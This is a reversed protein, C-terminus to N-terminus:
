CLGPPSVVGAIQGMPLAVYVVLTLFSDIAAYVFYAAFVSRGRGVKVYIWVLGASVVALVVPSIWRALLLNLSPTLLSVSPFRSLLDGFLLLKVGLQLLMAVVLGRGAPGDGVDVAHTALSFVVLWAVPVLVWILAVPTFFLSTLVSMVTNLGRNVVDYTTVRNLTEKAQPSTSAYVVNYREFGATDIWVLHLQGQADLAVNPRVSAGRSLNVIEQGGVQGPLPDVAAIQLMEPNGPSSVQTFCTLVQREPQGDLFRPHATMAPDGGQVHVAEDTVPPPAYEFPGTGPLEPLSPVPFTVYFTFNRIERERMELVWALYVSDKDLGLWPGDFQAGATPGGLMGMQISPQGAVADPGLARRQPDYIAYHFRPADGTEVRWALHIYGLRDVQAVPLLGGPVLLETPVVVDGSWDLATHYIDPRSPVNDSWFVEVTGGTPDLVTAAHTARRDPPTLAVAGRLVEGEASLRAYFLQTNRDWKDLWILHLLGEGDMTLQPKHASDSRLDLSVQVVTEARENLRAFILDHEPGVWVIFVRGAEDVQLAATNNLIATGMLKGNSWEDSARPTHEATLGCGSVVLGLMTLITLAFVVSRSASRSVRMM